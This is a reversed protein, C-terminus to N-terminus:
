FVFTENGNEGYRRYSFIKLRYRKKITQLSINIKRIIIKKPNRSVFKKCFRTEMAMPRLILRDRGDTTTNSPRSITSDMGSSSTCLLYSLSFIRTCLHVAPTRSVVYRTCWLKQPAHFVCFFFVGFAPCCFQM